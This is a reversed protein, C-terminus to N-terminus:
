DFKAWLRPDISPKDVERLARTRVPVLTATLSTLKNVMIEVEILMTLSGGIRRTTEGQTTTTLTTALSITMLPAAWVVGRSSNEQQTLSIWWQTTLEVWRARISPHVSNSGKTTTTTPTALRTIRARIAEILTTKAEKVNVKVMERVLKWSSSARLMRWRRDMRFASAFKFNSKQDIEFIKM